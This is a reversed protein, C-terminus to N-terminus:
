ARGPADRRARGSACARTAATAPPRSWRRPWEVTPTSTSSSRRGAAPRTCRGSASHLGRHEVADGRDDTPESGPAAPGAALAEDRSPYSTVALLRGDAFRPWRRRWRGRRLRAPRLPRLRTVHGTVVITRADVEIVEDSTLTASKWARRFEVMGARVGDHGRYTRRHGVRAARLRSRDPRLASTSGGRVTRRGYAPSSRGAPGPAGWPAYMRTGTRLRTVPRVACARRALPETPPLVGGHAPPGFLSMRGHGVAIGVAQEALDDGPLQGRRDHGLVLAGDGEHVDVRGGAAVREDDRALVRGVQQRDAVLVQRRAGGGGLAEGRAGLVREAGVAHVEQVGAAGGRPLRDEVEVDVHDRAVAVVRQAQRPHGPGPSASSIAAAPAASRAQHGLRHAELALARERDQGEVRRRQVEEVRRHDGRRCAATASTAASGGRPRSTRASPRTTLPPTSTCRKSPRVGSLRRRLQPGLQERHDVGDLLQRERGDEGGVGQAQGRRELERQRAVQQQRRSDARKPRTSVTTPRVGAMPPVCRSASRAPGARARSSTM